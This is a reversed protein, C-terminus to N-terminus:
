TQSTLYPSHTKLIKRLHKYNPVIQELENWFGAQHNPHNLHVLEHVLVYEILDDSLQMLWINLNIVGESSCSGWRTKLAKCRVEKFNYGYHKGLAYLKSPLYLEAQRRIARTAAKLAEKQLIPDSIKTESPATVTIEAPGVRSSIKSGPKFVLIHDRGIKQNQKLVLTTQNKTHEILWAKNKLVYQKAIVYPIHTPITVRARGDPRISIIIRKAKTSKKMEVEGVEAIEISQM